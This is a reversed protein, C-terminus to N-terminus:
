ANSEMKLHNAAFMNAAVMFLCLGFVRWHFASLLPAM